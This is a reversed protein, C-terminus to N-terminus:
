LTVKCNEQTLDRIRLFLVGPRLYPEHTEPHNVSLFIKTSASKPNDTKQFQWVRATFDKPDFKEIVYIQGNPFMELRYVVIDGPLLSEGKQLYIRQFYTALRQLKEANENKWIPPIPLTGTRLMVGVGWLDLSNLDTKRLQTSVVRSLLDTCSASGQGRLTENGPIAVKSTGKGGSVDLVQKQRLAQTLRAQDAPPLGNLLLMRQSLSNSNPDAKNPAGEMLTKFEEAVKREADNKPQSLLSGFNRAGEKEPPLKSLLQAYYQSQDRANELLRIAQTTEASHLSGNAKSLADRLSESEEFSRQLQQRVQPLPLAEYYNTLVGTDIRASELRTESIGKSQTIRVSSAATKEKQDESEVAKKATKYIREIAKTAPSDLPRPASFPQSPSAETQGMEKLSIAGTPWESSVRDSEVKNPSPSASQVSSSPSTPIQTADAKWTRADDSETIGLITSPDDEDACAKNSQGSIQDNLEASHAVPPLNDHLPAVVVQDMGYVPGEAGQQSRTFSAETVTMAMPKKNLGGAINIVAVKPDKYPNPRVAIEQGSAIQFGILTM